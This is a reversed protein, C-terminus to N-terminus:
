SYVWFSIDSDGDVMQGDEWVNAVTLPKILKEFLNEKFHIGFLGTAHQQSGTFIPTTFQIVGRGTSLSPGSEDSDCGGFQNDSSM